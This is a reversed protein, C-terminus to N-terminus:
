TCMCGRKKWKGDFPQNKVNTMKLDDNQQEVHTHSDAYQMSDIMVGSQLYTKVAVTYINIGKRIPKRRLYTMCSQHSSNNTVKSEDVTKINCEEILSNFDRIIKWMRMKYPACPHYRRM